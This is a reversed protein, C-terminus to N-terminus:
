GKSAVYDSLLKAIWFHGESSAIQVPTRGEGDKADVNAGHKLLLRVINGEPALQSSAALHLPTSHNGNQANVDAGHEILLNVTEVSGKSSALHLPTSYADDRATVDAGHRVLLQVIDTKHNSKAKRMRLGEDQGNADTRAPDITVTESSVRSSALHLPTRHNGDQATVDAGRGILLRVTEARGWSSALHLPMSHTEDRATVDAGHDILLRVTDATVHSKREYYFPLHYAPHTSDDQGNVDAQILLLATKASVWSSALHLPTKHRRDQATVDAGHEILLQVTEASGLSSALHLPTLHTEDQANMDAGHNILLRVTDAKMRHEMGGRDRATIDAGREILLRVIEASGSLAAFHLPTSHTEDQATVDAGHDILVRVTDVKVWYPPIPPIDDQGNIDPRHQFLLSVAKESVSSSALHLPTRGSGDQATVDAGSDILLRVSEPAGWSSALHLPTSHSEDQATVDVGHEIFLRVIGALEDSQRPPFKVSGHCQGNVYVRAKQTLCHTTTPSVRSSALHLPTKHNEDLVTVDAGNELLLRVTELSGSFAALHLPTSLTMDQVSVDAGHKILLRVVIEASVLSSAVHPPTKHDWDPANVDAGHDILLRVTETTSGQFVKHLPTSHTDDQANVDAGNEILMRVTEPIACISALHLPTCLALDLATLDAGHDILLRVTEAVVFSLTFHLPTRHRRDQTTVDAGHEILLRVTEADRSYSALHLPTRYMHNKTTVNAGRMLLRQVVESHGGQSAWHLPTHDTDDAADVIIGHGGHDFLWQVIDVYGGGSAAHLLTKNSDDRIGLDAGRQYLLEAIHLDGSRLAAVLPSPYRSGLSTVCQPNEAVLHAALDRFGCLSAYYLPSGLHKNQDHGPFFRSSRINLLGLWAELHPKAPDFLRRIGDEVRAWVNEFRAHNAWNKAAYFALPSLPEANADGIRHRLLVGLCGKVIVTHAPELLIHFRSIDASSTALRDSTLFEKVSFHSFQVVGSVVAILSSCTSLVAEQENKPRWNKKLEPIGEKVEFDLALVEALEAVRLPRRAVTLCQLLRHAYHQNTKGIEKLVRAYTEDLTEPLQRLIHPVNQPLCHRLTELQCFVWRFRLHILWR